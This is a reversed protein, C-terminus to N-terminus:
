RPGALLEDWRPIGTSEPAKALAIVLDAM